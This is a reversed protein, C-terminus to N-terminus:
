RASDDGGREDRAKEERIIKDLIEKSEPSVGTDMVMEGVAQGTIQYDGRAQEKGEVTIKCGMESLGCLKSLEAVNSQTLGLQAKYEGVTARIVSIEAETHEDRFAESSDIFAQAQGEVFDMNETYIGEIKQNIELARKAANLKQEQTADPNTLTEMCGSLEQEMQEFEEQGMSAKDENAYQENSDYYSGSMAPSGELRNATMGEQGAANVVAEMSVYPSDVNYHTFDIKITGSQEEDKVTDSVGPREPDVQGNRNRVESCTKLSGILILPTAILVGVRGVIKKKDDPKKDKTEKAKEEKKKKEKEANARFAAVLDKKEVGEPLDTSRVRLEYIEPGNKGKGKLTKVRTKVPQLRGTKKDDKDM